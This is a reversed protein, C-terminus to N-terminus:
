TTVFRTEVLVALAPANYAHRMSISMVNQWQFHIRYRAFKRVEFM